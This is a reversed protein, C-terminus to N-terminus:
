DVFFSGRSILFQRAPERHCLTNYQVQCSEEDGAAVANCRRQCFNPIRDM